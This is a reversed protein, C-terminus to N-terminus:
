GSAIDERHMGLVVVCSSCMPPPPPAGCCLICALANKHGSSCFLM